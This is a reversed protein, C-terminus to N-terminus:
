YQVYYEFQLYICRELNALFNLDESFGVNSNTLRHGFSPKSPKVLVLCLAM